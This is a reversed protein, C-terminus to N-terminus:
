KGTFVKRNKAVLTLLDKQLKESTTLELLKILMMEPLPPKGFIEIIDEKSLKNRVTDPLLWYAVIRRSLEAVVDKITMSKNITNM